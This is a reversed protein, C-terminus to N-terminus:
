NELVHICKAPCQKAITQQLPKEDPAIVLTQVGKNDRGNILDAKGDNDDMKWKEPSQQACLNCGICKDRVHMIKTM